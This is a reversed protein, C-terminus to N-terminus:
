IYTSCLNYIDTKLHIFRATVQFIAGFCGIEWWDNDVWCM